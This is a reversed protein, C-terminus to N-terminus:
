LAAVSIWVSPVLQSNVISFDVPPTNAVLNFTANLSSVASGTTLGLNNSGSYYTLSPMYYTGPQVVSDRKLTITYRAPTNYYAYKLVQGPFREQVTWDMSYPYTGGRKQVMPATQSIIIKKVQAQTLTDNIINGNQDIYNFYCTGIDFAANNPYQAEIYWAEPGTKPPTSICCTSPTIVYSTCSNGTAVTQVCPQSGFSTACAVFSGGGSSVTGTQLNGNCDYYTATSSGPSGCAISNYSFTYEICPVVSSTPEATCFFLTGAYAPDIKDTASNAVADLCVPVLVGGSISSTSYTVGDYNYNFNTAGGYRFYMARTHPTTIAQNSWYSVPIYM